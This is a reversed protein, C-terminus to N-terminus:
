HSLLANSYKCLPSTTASIDEVLITDYGKYFADMRSNDDAGASRLRGPHSVHHRLRMSRSCSFLSSGTSTRKLFLM